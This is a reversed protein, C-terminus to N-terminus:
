KSRAALCVLMAQVFPCLARYYGKGDSDVVVTGKFVQGDMSVSRYISTYALLVVVVGVIAIWRKKKLFVFLPVLLVAGWPYFRL